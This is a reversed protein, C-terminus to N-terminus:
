LALSLMSPMAVPNLDPVCSLRRAQADVRRWAWELLDLACVELESHEGGGGGGREGARAVLAELDESSGRGDDSDADGDANDTGVDALAAAAALAGAGSAPPPHGETFALAFMTDGRIAVALVYKPEPHQSGTHPHAVRRTFQLAAGNRRM